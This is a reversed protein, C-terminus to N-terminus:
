CHIATNNGKDTSCCPLKGENMGSECRQRRRSKEWELTFTILQSMLFCTRQRDPSSSTKRQCDEASEGGGGGFRGREREGEVERVDETSIFMLIGNPGGFCRQDRPQCPRASHDHM